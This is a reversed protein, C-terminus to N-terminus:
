ISPEAPQHYHEFTTKKSVGEKIKKSCRMQMKANITIARGARDSLPLNEKILTM